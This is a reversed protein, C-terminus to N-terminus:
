AAIVYHRENTLAPGSQVPPTLSKSESNEPERSWDVTISADVVWTGLSPNADLQTLFTRLTPLAFFARLFRDSTRSQLGGREWRCISETAFGFCSALEQQTLGLITRCTRINESALLHLKRRLAADMAAEGEPVAYETQCSSCRNVPLTEVLVDHLVNDHRMQVIRNAVLAPSVGRAGCCACLWPFTGKM